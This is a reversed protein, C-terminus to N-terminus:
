GASATMRSHVTRAITSIDRFQEGGISELQLTVHIEDEIFRILQFFAFSDLIGLEFLPTSSTLDAGQGQLIDKDIFERIRAEIQGCEMRTLGTRVNM